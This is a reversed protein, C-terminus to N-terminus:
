NRVCAMIVKIEDGDPSTIEYEGAAQPVICTEAYHLQMPEFSENKSRLVACAGDVLNLMHVSGNRQVTLASSTTFRFTDLFERDHLGTRVVTGNEGAYIEHQKNILNKYVWETDRDWQINAAGHKLHIPRPKGDLDVRGWDWLKFTFIYPTASIELVMTDAGSCHVTGSPILVHDHKKVPVRNVFKDAQFAEGGEQAMQLADLMEEPKTGTKIGLYVCPDNGAVDLFYYSEDQTYHM